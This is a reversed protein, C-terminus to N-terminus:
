SEEGLQANLLPIAKAHAISDLAQIGAILGKREALTLEDLGVEINSVVQKGGNFAISLLGFYDGGSRSALQIDVHDALAVRSFNKALDAM